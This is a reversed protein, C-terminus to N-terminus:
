GRIQANSTRKWFPSRRSGVGVATRGGSAGTPRTNGYETNGKNRGRGYDQIGHKAVQVVTNRRIGGYETNGGGLM